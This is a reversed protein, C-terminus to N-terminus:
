DLEDMFGGEYERMSRCQDPWQCGEFPDLTWDHRLYWCDARKSFTTMRDRTHMAYEAQSVQRIELQTPPNDTSRGFADVGTWQQGPLLRTSDSVYSTQRENYRQYGHIPTYIEVTEWQPNAPDGPETNHQLYYPGKLVYPKATYAVQLDGNNLFAHFFEEFQQSPCTVPAKSPSYIRGPMMPGPSDGRTEGPILPWRQLSPNEAADPQRPSASASQDAM